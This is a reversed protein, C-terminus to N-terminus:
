RTAYSKSLERSTIDWLELSIGTSEAVSALNRIEALGKGRRRYISKIVARAHGQCTVSAPDIGAQILINRDMNKVPGLEWPYVPAYNVLWHDGCSAAYFVASVCGHRFHSVAELRRRIKEERDRQVQSHLTRLSYSRGAGKNMDQAEEQTQAILFAPTVLDHEATLWLPDIIYAKPKASAAIAALRGQLTEIGDIVGPLTRTSRGVIQQYLVKSKTPRLNLTADIPPIDIGTHLLNSNSLLQIEGTRFRELKQEREPDEGDIHVARLGAKVCASVFKQSSAVLPLFALIRRKSHKQALELAIAEFWPEIADAADQLDYDMEGAANRKVRVQELSIPTSLRDVNDPSVLYGDDVLSFLDKRYAETVFIKALDKNDSRFPTATIGTVKAQSFHGLVREWSAAAATHAEDCFIYRFHDAPFRELRAKRSLTQVSAIVVQADLPARSEAKELAPVFGVMSRFASMPQVCLENRNAIYLVRGEKLVRSAVAAAIVTKGGGTAVVTMSSPFEKWSKLIGNVADEQYPRLQM